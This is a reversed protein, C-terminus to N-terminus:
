QAGVSGWISRVQLQQGPWVAVIRIDGDSRSEWGNAYAAERGDNYSLPQWSQYLTERSILDGELLLEFWKSLDSLSTNLGASAYQYPAFPFENRGLLGGSQDFRYSSVRGPIFADSGGFKTDMLEFPKIMRDEIAAMVDQGTLTEIIRGILFYNTQNYRSQSGLEYVMPKDFLPILLGKSQLPLDRLPGFYEPLGSQHSLIQRVTIHQWHPPIDSLYTAIPNDLDVKGEEVLQYLTTIVFLKTISHLQFVQGTNVPVALEVNAMGGAQSYVLEGDKLIAISYGVIGNEESYRELVSSFKQDLDSSKPNKEGVGCSSIFVCLLVIKIFSIMRM